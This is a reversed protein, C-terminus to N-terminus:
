VPWDIAVGDVAFSPSSKVGIPPWLPEIMESNWRDYVNKLKEVIEPREAALNKQEGIDQSLDYLWYRDGAHILKWDGERIAWNPGSRWYLTDHPRGDISGNLYPVLDVGDGPRDTSPEAHGAAAMATPFIDLASVPHDYTMGASIRGPWKMIFPVRVGGEFLTQKGLRLPENSCYDAVGAGNDSLFIVMTNEQLGNRELAELVSGVGDDMSSAMAAFIRASEDDMHAFRDYYKSTVQLPQHVATYPLYLFFPRGGHDDIFAVAERTFADTLYDGEEVVQTGRRVANVGGRGGWTAVPATKSAQATKQGPRSSKVDERTPDIYDSGWDVVGFFEDFGRHIPHFEEGVGLHWKGVMGTRYGARRMADALTAEGPPLGVSEDSPLFEHGYRQQYRGTLLGARSPSCVPSTVYGATFLVGEEAIRNIKPTPITDCGYLESDCYGLDDALILVINPPATETGCSTTMCALAVIVAPLFRM